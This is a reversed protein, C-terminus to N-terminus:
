HAALVATAAEVLADAMVAHGEATPHFAGSYAASSTLTLTETPLAGEYFFNAAMFADNPSRFWRQRPWYPRFAHPEFSSWIGSHRRPFMSNIISPVDREYKAQACIGHSRFKERHAQVFTWKAASAGSAMAKHLHTEVFAEVKGTKPGDLRYMNTADFGRQGSSCITGRENYGMLPYASLLVREPEEIYLVKRLAEALVAYDAKLRPILKIAQTPTTKVDADGVWLVFDLLGNNRLASNAVMGAFQVDNGGISLLLIDIKRHKGKPCTIFTRERDRIKHKVPTAEVSCIAQSVGSLQSIKSIEKDDAPEHGSWVELLGERISAGTCSVGIFTVSRHQKPDAIALQLAARLHQSYLSRHCGRNLWRARAEHFRTASDNNSLDNIDFKLGKRAPYGQSSDDTGFLMEKGSDYSVAKDPNGEGSAFSDGMSVVLIDEIDAVTEGKANGSKVVIKSGSRVELLKHTSCNKAETVQGKTNGDYRWTCKANLGPVRVSVKFTKPNVYDRCKGRQFWCPTESTNTGLMNGNAMEEAWGRGATEKARKREVASVPASKKEADSLAHFDTFHRQTHKPDKFFRFPNELRWEIKVDAQASAPTSVSTIAAVLAALWTLAGSHRM